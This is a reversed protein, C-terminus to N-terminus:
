CPAFAEDSTVDMALIVASSSCRAVGKFSRPTETIPLAAHPRPPITSAVSKIPQTSPPFGGICFQEFEPFGKVHCDRALGWPERPSPTSVLRAAGLASALTFPYDLGCVGSPRRRFGYNTLFDTPGFPRHRNLDLRGCRMLNEQRPACGASFRIGQRNSTKPPTFGTKGVPAALEAGFEAEGFIKPRGTSRACKTRRTYLSPQSWHHFRGFLPSAIRNMTM